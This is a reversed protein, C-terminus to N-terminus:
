TGGNRLFVTPAGFARRHARAAAAIAPHSRDVLGPRTRMLTRVGTEVASPRIRAVHERVLSDIEHPDQDPALRFNLKAVARTPIAAKVGPGQYGGTVSSVTLSPRITTREYLSYGSEGWPKIAGANRLM